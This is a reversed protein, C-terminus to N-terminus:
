KNAHGVKKIRTFKHFSQGLQHVRPLCPLPTSRSHTKGESGGYHM